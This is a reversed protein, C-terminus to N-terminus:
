GFLSPPGKANANYLFREQVVEAMNGSAPKKITIVPYNMQLTWTDMISEVDIVKGEVASQQSLLSLSHM